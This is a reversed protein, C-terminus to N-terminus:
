SACCFACCFAGICTRAHARVCMSACAHVWASMFAHVCANVLSPMCASAYMYAFIWGGVWAGGVLGCVCEHMARVRCAICPCARAHVPMCPQVCVCARVTACVGVCMRM